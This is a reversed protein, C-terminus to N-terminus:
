PLPIRVGTSRVVISDSHEAVVLVVIAMDDKPRGSDRAIAEALVQDAIAQANGHIQPRDQLFSVVNFPENSGRAGSGQIGDTFAIVALDPALPLQLVTPRVFHHVGIAGNAATAIRVDGKEIMVLPTVSNRASLVNSTKLDDSLIDLTSSVKGHRYAFLTDHVARAVVGDRVGKKLMSVAESSLQMSLTKAAQGSGQGDVLVASIGGTPREALEVTDGSERSAYKNTKAAAFEFVLSM